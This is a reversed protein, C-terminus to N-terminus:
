HHQPTNQLELLKQDIAHSEKAMQATKEAFAHTTAADAAALQQLQSQLQARLM